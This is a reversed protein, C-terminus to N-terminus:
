TRARALSGGARGGAFFELARMVDERVSGLGLSLRVAGVTGGGLCAAFGPITFEEGLENLCAAARDPAIGFARESCGPNCFCGGRVALQSARAAEEVEWYPHPSGDRALLSMAITAGRAEMTRPGHIRVVPAGNGHRLAQLGFLLEATLTRLHRALRDRGASEVAALAAPVAGAALFPVTGDEFAAAGSALRHRGHQVSVWRVTGGAFSPRRLEALAAHRAVLAGVGSPYGAIKYMSLAVFDPQVESLRLESTPVYSAADLLVRWGRARADAVLSLPHRAGSFNSQAPFAFLSPATGPADLVSMPDVLRLEDDLPITALKAGRARAFERIGNVSNHNDAALALVSGARFAFSEAVLRCAATANTTLVVTYEAPDAHLFDLIARRASEVDRTAARSPGHESHPNGLVADGLRIADGRVLSEPYLAAGTYDLYTLGERDVRALERARWASFYADDGLLADRLTTPTRERTTLM